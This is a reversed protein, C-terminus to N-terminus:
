LRKFRRVVRGSAARWIMASPARIPGGGGSRPVTVVLENGVVPSTVTFPPSVKPSYGSARGAPYRLTVTAVGDPVIMTITASTASGPPGTSVHEGAEINAAGGGGGGVGGVIGAGLDVNTAIDMLGVHGPSCGTLAPYIYYSRGDIVRTRRVYHVFTDGTRGVEPPLTDAATQPRRLVGLIALLSRGPAGQLAKGYVAACGSHSRRARESASSRAPAAGPQTAGGGPGGAAGWAIVGGLVIGALVITGRLRHRRQRERAEEIVGDEPSRPPAPDLVPSM